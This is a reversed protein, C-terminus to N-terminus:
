LPTETTAQWGALDDATLLGGHVDGSADLVANEACFRGIEEAVFGTYFGAVAKDIQGDRSGTASEAERLLREYTDALVTNRLLTGARPARGGRLWLAASTPWHEAFMGAVT